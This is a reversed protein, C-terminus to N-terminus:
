GSTAHLDFGQGQEGHDHQEAQGPNSNGARLAVIANENTGVTDVNAAILAARDLADVLVDALTASVARRTGDDAGDRAAHEAVLDALALAALCRGHRPRAAAPNGPTGEAVGAARV